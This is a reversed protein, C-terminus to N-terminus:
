FDSDTKMVFLCILDILMLNEHAVQGQHCLRSGEDDVSRLTDQRKYVDLHIFFACGQFFAQFFLHEIGKYLRMDHILMCLLILYTNCFFLRIFQLRTCIRKHFIIMLCQKRIRSCISRKHFLHQCRDRICM